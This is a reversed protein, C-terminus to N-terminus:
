DYLQESPVLVVECIDSILAVASPMSPRNTAVPANSLQLSLADKPPGLTRYRARPERPYSERARPSRGSPKQAFIAAEFPLFLWSLSSAGEQPAAARKRWRWRRERGLGATKSRRRRRRCGRPRPSSGGM